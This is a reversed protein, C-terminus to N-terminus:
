AAFQSPSVTVSPFAKLLQGDATVLPIGLDQALSIFECDYATCRSTDALQLVVSSNITYERGQLWGEAETVINLAANLTLANRRVLTALTNRFESRWLVPAMWIPDRKLVAEAEPTRASEMFLYIILNTDVVIM